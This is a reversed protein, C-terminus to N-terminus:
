SEALDQHHILHRQKSWYASREKAMGAPFVVVLPIAGQRAARGGGGPSGGGYSRTVLLVAEFIGGHLLPVVPVALDDV